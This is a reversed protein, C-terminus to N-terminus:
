PLVEPFSPVAVVGGVANAAALAKTLGPNGPTGLDNDAAFIMEIRPFKTRLSRAVADLNSADFAVAVAYGTAQHITAGTAYGEAVCLVDGPRGIALYCGKKRGGTLFRKTGEDDIFQLSWLTGAVDRLPIVLANRLQRIGFARVNKKQLYPHAADPLRARQWLASARKGTAIQVALVEADRLARLEEQRKRDAEIEAPNGTTTRDAIWKFSCGLKHSGVVGAPRGDLHLVYWGNKRGARDGEVDFRHVIGDAVVDCDIPLGNSKAFERFAHEPTM